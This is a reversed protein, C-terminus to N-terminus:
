SYQKNQKELEADKKEQQKKHYEYRSPEGNYMIMTICEDWPTNVFQDYSFQGNKITPTKVLLKIQEKNDYTSKAIIDDVAKKSFPVYYVEHQGTRDYGIIQDREIVPELEQEWYRDEVHDAVPAVKRGQWDKGYWNEFGYLFEKMEKRKSNYDIARIRVIKTIEKEVPYKEADVLMLFHKNQYDLHEPVDLGNKRYSEETRNNWGKLIDPVKKKKQEVLVAVRRAM